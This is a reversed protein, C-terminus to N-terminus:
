PLLELLGPVDLRSLLGVSSVAQRQPGSRLMDRLYNIAAMGLENVLDVIRDCEERRMSRFFREALHEAAAQSNRHLVGLLDAPVRQQNLADEIFDPLRSEVGIRSRLEKELAPRRSALYDMTECAQAVARYQRRQNAESSLRVFAASLVSEVEPDSEKALADGLKQTADGLVTGGVSTLVDAFQTLGNAVRARYDREKSNAQSAYNELVASATERDGRQLLLEVYQRVNRAPVCAADPSLLAKKKSHEPLEAWFMRDLLDAHPEVLIGARSMKDEHASLIKRLNAIQRGMEEMMQRVANVQLDGAQFRELAYRIALQEAARMLVPTSSKHDHATAVEELISLVTKRITEETRHLEVGILEPKPSRQTGLEAFRTLLRLAEGIEKENLPFPTDEADSKGGPTESEAATLDFSLQSAVAAEGSSSADDAAAILQVLRGPDGIWEKTEPALAHAAIQADAGTGEAARDAAVSELGKIRIHASDGPFAARIVDAFGQAKSGSFSFAKVFHAFEERTTESSIQISVVGAATLLQAFGREAQGTEVPVGDLLLHDDSVGLVLSGKQGPAAEQLEQWAAEFQLRTRRHDFGYLRVYKVLINM